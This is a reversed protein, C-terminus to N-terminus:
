SLRKKEVLKQQTEPTPKRNRCVRNPLFLAKEAIGPRDRGNAIGLQLQLSPSHPRKSIIDDIAPSMSIQTTGQGPHSHIELTEAVDNGFDFAVEATLDDDINDEDTLEDVEPLIYVSDIEDCYNEQLITFLEQTTWARNNEIM